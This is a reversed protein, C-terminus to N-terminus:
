RGHREYGLLVRAGGEDDIAHHWRLSLAHPHQHQGPENSVVIHLCPM